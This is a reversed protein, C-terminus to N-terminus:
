KFFPALSLLRLRVDKEDRSSWLSIESAGLYTLIDLFLSKAYAWEGSDSASIGEFAM